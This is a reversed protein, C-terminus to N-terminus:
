AIRSHFWTSVMPVMVVPSFIWFEIKAETMIREPPKETTSFTM